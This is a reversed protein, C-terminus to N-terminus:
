GALRPAECLERWARITLGHGDCARTFESTRHGLRLAQEPCAKTRQILLTQADAPLRRDAVVDDIECAMRRLQHNLKVAAAVGLGFLSGIVAAAVTPKFPAAVMHLTQPVSREVFIEIRDELMQELQDPIAM